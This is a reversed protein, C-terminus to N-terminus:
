TLWQLDIDHPIFHGYWWTLLPSIELVQCLGLGPGSSATWSARWISAPRGQFTGTCAVTGIATIHHNLVTWTTHGLGVTPWCYGIIIDGDPTWGLTCCWTKMGFVVNLFRSPYPILLFFSVIFLQGSGFKQFHFILTCFILGLTEPTHQFDFVFIACSIFVATSLMHEFSVKFSLILVSGWLVTLWMRKMGGLKREWMTDIGQQCLLHWLKWRQCILFFMKKLYGSEMNCWAHTGVWGSGVNWFYVVFSWVRLNEDWVDAKFKAPVARWTVGRMHALGDQVLTGLCVVCKLDSLKWTVCGHKSSQRLLSCRAHTGVRFWRELSVGCFRLGQSKWRVCGQKSSQRLLGSCIVGRMHALGDQVLTGFICWLVESGLIKM